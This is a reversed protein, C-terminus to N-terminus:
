EGKEILFSMGRSITPRKLRKPITLPHTKNHTTAASLWWNECGRAQKKPLSISQTPTTARTRKSNEAKVCLVLQVKL